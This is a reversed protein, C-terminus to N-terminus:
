SQDTKIVSLSIKLDDDKAAKETETTLIFISKINLQEPSPLMCKKNVRFKSNFAHGKLLKLMFVALDIYCFSDHNTKGM